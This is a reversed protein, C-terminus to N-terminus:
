QRDPRSIVLLVVWCGWDWGYDRTRGSRDVVGGIGVYRCLVRLGFEELNHWQALNNQDSSRSAAGISKVRSVDLISPEQFLTKICGIVVSHFTCYLASIYDRM